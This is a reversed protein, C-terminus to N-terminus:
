SQPAKLSEVYWGDPEGSADEHMTLAVSAGILPRDATSTLPMSAAVM